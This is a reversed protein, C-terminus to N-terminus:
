PELTTCMQVALELWDQWVSTFKTNTDIPVSHTIVDRATARNYVLLPTAVHLRNTHVYNTHIFEKLNPYVRFPHNISTRICDLNLM